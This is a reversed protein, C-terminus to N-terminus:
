LRMCFDNLNASSSLHAFCYKEKNETLRQEETRLYNIVAECVWKMM